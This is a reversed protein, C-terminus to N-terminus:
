LLHYVFNMAFKASVYSCFKQFNDQKTEDGFDSVAKIFIPITTPHFECAKYVGYGEMDIGLLKRDSQQLKKLYNKSSLVYPGSGVPGFHVKLFTNPKNDSYGNIIDFLYQTNNSFDTVRGLAGQNTNICLMNPKFILEGKDDENIKGAEYDWCQSAVIIDGINVGADNIGGCIGVVFIYSPNFKTIIKSSVASAAQMGM